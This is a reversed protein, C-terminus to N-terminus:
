KWRKVITFLAALFTPTCIGPHVENLGQKLNQQTYVWFYFQQTEHYNWKLKKLFQWAAKWLQQVM